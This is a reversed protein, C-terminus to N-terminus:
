KTLNSLYQEESLGFLFITSLHFIYFVEAMNSSTEAGLLVM